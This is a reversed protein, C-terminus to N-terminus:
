IEEDDSTAKFLLSFVDSIDKAYKVISDPLQAMKAVNTGFSNSASGQNLKYLFLVDEENNEEKLYGMHASTIQNQSFIQTLCKFHTVFLTACKIKNILYQLVSKAIATGDFTATGRGLEDLLVLSKNTATNLILSTEELEVLLTSKTM